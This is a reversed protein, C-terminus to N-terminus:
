VMFIINQWRRTKKMKYKELGDKKKETRKRDCVDESTLKM